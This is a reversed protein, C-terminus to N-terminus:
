HLTVSPYDNAGGTMGNELFAVSINYELTGSNDIASCGVVPATVTSGLKVMATVGADMATKIESFTKDAVYTGNNQSDTMTVILPAYNDVWTM